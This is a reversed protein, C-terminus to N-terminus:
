PAGKSASAAGLHGFFVRAAQLRAEETTCAKRVGELQHNVQEMRKRHGDIQAQLANIAGQEDALCQQTEQEKARLMGHVRKIKREADALVDASSKGIAGLFAEASAIRSSHPLGPDLRGLFNELQEVEDTDPIGAADYQAQFDIVLSGDAGSSLQISEAEVPDFADAPVTHPDDSLLATLEEDSMEEGGAAAGGAPADSSEWFLKKLSKGFSM